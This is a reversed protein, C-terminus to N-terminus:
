KEIAEKEIISKQAIEKHFLAEIMPPIAVNAAKSISALADIDNADNEGAIANAITPSFKTWEATSYAIM